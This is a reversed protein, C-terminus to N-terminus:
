LINCLNTQGFELSAIEKKKNNIHRLFQTRLVGGEKPMFSAKQTMFDQVRNYRYLNRILIITKCATMLKIKLVQTLWQIVGFIMQADDTQMRNSIAEKSKLNGDTHSECEDHDLGSINDLFLELKEAPGQAQTFLQKLNNVLQKIEPTIIGSKLSSYPNTMYKLLSQARKRTQYLITAKHEQIIRRHDLVQHADNPRYYLLLIAGAIVIMNDHFNDYCIKAKIERDIRNYIKHIEADLIALKQKLGGQLLVYLVECCTIIVYSKLLIDRKDSSEDMVSYIIDDFYNIGVVNNVSNSILGYLFNDMVPPWNLLNLEDNVDIDKPITLGYPLAWEKIRSGDFDM